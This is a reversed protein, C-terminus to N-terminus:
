ESPTRASETTQLCWGEEDWGPPRFRFLDFAERSWPDPPQEPVVAKLEPAKPTHFPKSLLVTATGNSRTNLSVARQISKRGRPKPQLAIAPRSPSDADASKVPQAGPTPSKKAPSPTHRVPAGPVRASRLPPRSSESMVRRFHREEREPPIATAETLLPAPPMIMQDLQALEMASVESPTRMISESEIAHTPAHTNQQELAVNMDACGDPIAEAARPRKKGLKALREELQKRQSKPSREATARGQSAASLLQDVASETNALYARSPKKLGQDEFLLTKKKSAGAAVRLTQGSKTSPPKPSRPRESTSETAAGDHRGRLQRAKPASESNNAQDPWPEPAKDPLATVPSVHRKQQQAQPESRGRTAEDTANTSTKRGHGPAQQTQFAPSSSRVPPQKQVDAEHRPSSPPM